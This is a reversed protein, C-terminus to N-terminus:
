DSTKAPGVDPLPGSPHIIDKPRCKEATYMNVNPKNVKKM